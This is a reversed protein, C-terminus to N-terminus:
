GILFMVNLQPIGEGGGIVKKSEAYHLINVTFSGLSYCPQFGICFCCHLSSVLFPVELDLGATLWSAARRGRCM